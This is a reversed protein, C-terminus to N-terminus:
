GIKDRHLSVCEEEGGQIFKFFPSFGNVFEGSITLKRADPGANSADEAGPQNTQTPRPHSM